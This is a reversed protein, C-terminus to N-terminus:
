ALSTHTETLTLSHFLHGTKDIPEARKQKLYEIDAIRSNDYWEQM